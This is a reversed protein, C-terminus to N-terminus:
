FLSRENVCNITCGGGPLLGTGKGFVQGELEVLGDVLDLGLAGGIGQTVGLDGDAEVGIVFDGDQIIASRQGEGDEVLLGSLCLDDRGFIEVLRKVFLSHRGNGTRIMGPAFAKRCGEGFVSIGGRKGFTVNRSQFIPSM